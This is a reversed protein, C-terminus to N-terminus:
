SLGLQRAIRDLTEPTVSSISEAAFTSRGRFWTLQRKAYRRTALTIDERCKNETIDGDLCATIERWGLIQRATPSATARATRVEDIAGGRLRAAVAEAIRTALDSRGRVLVVGRLGEPPLLETLISSAPGGTQMCLELRRSVRRPNQADVSVASAPDLERLRELMVALPMARVEERISPDIAPLEPLGAMLAQLYFGSGGVVFPVFGRTIVDAVVALAMGAYRAADMEDACAICGFLHHVVDAREVESPQAGLVPFERYLQFADANIIEGGHKQALAVAVSSKGASTPGCVFVARRLISRDIKVAL